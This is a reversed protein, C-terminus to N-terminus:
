RRWSLMLRRIKERERNDRLLSQIGLLAIVDAGDITTWGTEECRKKIALLRTIFNSGENGGGRQKV